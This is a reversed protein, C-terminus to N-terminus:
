LDTDGLAFLGSTPYEGLGVEPIGTDEAEIEDALAIWCAYGAARWSFRDGGGKM